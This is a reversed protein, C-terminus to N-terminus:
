GPPLPSGSFTQHLFCHCLQIQVTLFFEQVFAAQFGPAVQGRTTQPCRGGPFAIKLARAWAFRQGLGPRSVRLVPTQRWSGRQGPRHSCLHPFPSPPLPCPSLPCWSQLTRSLSKRNMVRSVSDSQM